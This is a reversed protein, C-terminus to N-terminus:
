QKLLWDVGATRKGSGGTLNGSKAVMYVRYALGSPRENIWTNHPANLAVLGPVDGYKAGGPIFDPHRYDLLQSFRRSKTNAVLNAVVRGAQARAATAIPGTGDLAVINLIKNGHKDGDIFSALTMVDHVRKAFLSHNFGLTYGAFERKNEVKRTQTVPKGDALFEGQFFLDAGVVTHGANLLKQVGAVPQGDKGFLGDKGNESLWLTTTGSWDNPYLWTVPIVEQHTENRVLGGMQIFSDQKDKSILEWETNGADAFNRGILVEWAGGYVRRFEDLSREAPKLVITADQTLHRVLELEFAEGSRPKPHDENWVTIEEEARFQFDQELIPTKIGLRFHQNVWKYMQARTVYNYNHKFHEGRILKVGQKNGLLQYHAQIEPFGKEALERTWDDASNMIQPRPAFLASFEINGTNVRLLSANECTCGGQMATSVMVMPMSLAIRDDIAALLMTQTGGGSAGTVALRKTDVEPLTEMFDLARISNWSFLGMVNQVRAEAQPSFFGWDKTKNLHERQKAFRHVLDYSLQKSDAYGVMDYSFVVCGMRALQVCRAQIHNRGGNEFREAGIIIDNRVRPAHDYFRGEKWHGHPCIIGPAKGVLKKPRYLNGTVYFGPYSEFYVKEITYDGEDIKGHIVPKLPTRTPLPWLGQSVMIQRKVYESRKKWQDKSHAPSFPFYGNLDKPETLRSDDPLKGKPLVRTSAEAPQIAAILFTLLIVFKTPIQM